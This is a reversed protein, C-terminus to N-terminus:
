FSLNLYKKVADWLRGSSKGFLLQSFTVYLGRFKFRRPVNTCVPGTLM